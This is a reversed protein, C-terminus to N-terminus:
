LQTNWGREHCSTSWVVNHSLSQWYSAVSRHNEVPVRTEEVLLVSWRSIASINNFTAFNPHGKKKIEDGSLLTQLLWFGYISYYCFCLPWFFFNCFSLCHDVFCVCLVLSRTVYLHFTWLPFNFYDVVLTSLEFRAWVLHVRYLM